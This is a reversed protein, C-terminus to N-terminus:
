VADKHEVRFYTKKVPDFMVDFSDYIWLRGGSRRFEVEIKRLDQKVKKGGLYLTVEFEVFASLKKVHVKMPFFVSTEDNRIISQAQADFSAKRKGYIAPHFYKAVEAFQSEITAPTYQFTAHLFSEALHQIYVPDVIDGDITYPSNMNVPHIITQQDTSISFVKYALLANSVLLVFTISLWVKTKFQENIIHSKYHKQLMSM